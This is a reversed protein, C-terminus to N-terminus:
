TLQSEHQPAGKFKWPCPKHASPAGDIVTYIALNLTFIIFLVPFSFALVEKQPGKERNRGANTKSQNL